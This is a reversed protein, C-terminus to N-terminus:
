IREPDNPIRLMIKHERVEGCRVCMMVIYTASMDPIWGGNAAKINKRIDNQVLMFSHGSECPHPKVIRLLDEGEKLYHAKDARDQYEKLRKELEKLEEAFTREPPKEGLRQLAEDPDLNYQGPM